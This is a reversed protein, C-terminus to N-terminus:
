CRKALGPPLSGTRREHQALGPPLSGTRQIQMALGPPLCGSGNLVGVEGRARSSGETMDFSLRERESPAGGFGHGRAGRGLHQDRRDENDGPVAIIKSGANRQSQGIKPAKARDAPAGIVKAGGGRHGQGQGQAVAVGDVGLIAVLVGIGFFRAITRAM